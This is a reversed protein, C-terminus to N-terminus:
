RYFLVSYYEFIILDIRLNIKTVVFLKFQKFSFWVFIIGLALELEHARHILKLLPIVFYWLLRRNWNCVCGYFLTKPM